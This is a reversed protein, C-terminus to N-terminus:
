WPVTRLWEKVVQISLLKKQATHSLLWLERGPPPPLDSPPLVLLRQDQEAIARPLLTKGRGAAVAEIATDLDGIRLGPQLTGDARAAALLWKAQPLYAHAEDYQIWSANQPNTMGASGYLAFAMEGMKQAQVESGGQTPRAFRVALDAERQTLNLNRQEPILEITLDPHQDQLAHLSPVLVRNIIVPVATIRVTGLLKGADAGAQEQVLYAQHEIDMARETIKRGTETLKFLGHGNRVFLRAALAHELAKIRRAVTTEDVGLARGAETLSGARHLALVFRLDNWNFGQM